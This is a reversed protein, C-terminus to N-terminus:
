KGKAARAAAQQELAKIREELVVTERLKAAGELIAKAAGLQVRADSNSLLRGLTKAAKTTQNIMRGMAREMMKSRLADVQAVFEPEAVWNVVTRHGVGCALAAAKVTQGGALLFAVAQRKSESKRGTSM